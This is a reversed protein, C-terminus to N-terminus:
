STELIEPKVKKLFLVCLATIIGEAFFVPLHAVAILKAVQFFEEGTTILVLALLVTGLGIGMLGSGFGAAAAVPRSGNKVPTRFIYFAIVAPMAMILTNIGLTTFGGFQFVLAQLSLAVVISPFAMWGLLVGLLGNLVLHANAPGIPIHILSAVFFASSMVAVEPIKRLDMKKLGVSIGAASLAAGMVLVEPSLVGESINM